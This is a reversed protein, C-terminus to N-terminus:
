ETWPAGSARNYRLFAKYGKQLYQRSRAKRCGELILPAHGPFMVKNSVPTLNLRWDVCFGQYDPSSKIHSASTEETNASYERQQVNNGFSDPPSQTFFASVATITLEIM